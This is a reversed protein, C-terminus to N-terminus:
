RFPYFIFNFAFYAILPDFPALHHTIERGDAWTALLLYPKEVGIKRLEMLAKAEVCWQVKVTPSQIERDQIFLKIM